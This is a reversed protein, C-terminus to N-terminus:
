AAPHPRVDCGRGGVRGGDARRLCPRDKQANKLALADEYYQFARRRTGERSPWGQEEEAQDLYAHLACGHCLSDPIDDPEATMVQEKGLCLGPTQVADSM